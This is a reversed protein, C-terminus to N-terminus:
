MPLLVTKHTVPYVSSFALVSLCRGCFIRELAFPPALCSFDGHRSAPRFFPSNARVSGKATLGIVRDSCRLRVFSRHNVRFRVSLHTIRAPWGGPVGASPPVPHPQSPLEGLRVWGLRFQHFLGWYQTCDRLRGSDHGARLRGRQWNGQKKALRLSRFMWKGVNVAGSREIWVFYSLISVWFASLVGQLNQFLSRVVNYWRTTEQPGGAGLVQREESVVRDPAPGAGLWCGM